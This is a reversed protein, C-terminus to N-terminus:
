DVHPDKWEGLKAEQQHHRSSQTIPFFFQLPMVCNRKERIDWFKYYGIFLMFHNKVHQTM